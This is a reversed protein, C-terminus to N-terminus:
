RTAETIIAKEATANAIKTDFDTEGIRTMFSKYVTPNAELVDIVKELYKPINNRLFVKEDNSLAM